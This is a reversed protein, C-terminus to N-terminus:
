IDRKKKFVPRDNKIQSIGQGKRGTIYEFDAVREDGM